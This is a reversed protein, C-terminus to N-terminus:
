LHIRIQPASNKQFFNSPTIATAPQIRTSNYFTLFTLDEGKEGEKSNM